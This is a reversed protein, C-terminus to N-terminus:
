RKARRGTGRNSRPQRPAQRALKKIQDWGSSVRELERNLRENSVKLSRNERVLQDVLRQTESLLQALPESRNRRGRRIM